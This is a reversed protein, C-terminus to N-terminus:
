RRALSQSTGRSGREDSATALRAILRELEIRAAADASNYSKIALDAALLWRTLQKARQRGIHRLQQEAQSLKFPPIGSQALAERLSLPRRDLQAAEYLRAATTFKRLSSAIQPLLGHPKEGSSIIRDLQLLAQDARGEVAADVLDWVARTRWGGVNDRVLKADIVREDGALLALKELEQVLVGLELPLLELIADVAAAELRIDHVTKARDTLWSKAQRDNLSKCEITLGSAAVAKALRTSSPWSTVDLVLVGTAAPKAAYDELEGRYNTVFTDADEVIVLRRGSGFLSVTSLEDLVDRLQTEPGAFTALSFEGEDDGLVQRRLATLVERKLFTEDGCVACLAPPAPPKAKSLYEIASLASAKAM